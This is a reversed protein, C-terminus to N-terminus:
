RCQISVYVIIIYITTSPHRGFYLGYVDNVNYRYKYPSFSFSFWGNILKKYVNNVVVKDVFSSSLIHFTQLVLNCNKGRLLNIYHLSCWYNLEILFVARSPLKIICLLRTPLNEKNKKFYTPRDANNASCIIDLHPM